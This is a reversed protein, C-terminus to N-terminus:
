KQSVKLRAFVTPQGSPLTYSITTADNVTPTVEAWSNAGLTTSQEIAYAVDGNAVALASKTFSLTGGVLTGPSGNALTPNFGALAYEMLNSMGDHDPDAAPLKDAASLGSFTGMFADFGPKALFIQKAVADYGLTYGAPVTTSSLTGTLSGSYSAIVYRAAAPTALLTFNVSAGTVDLDGNVNLTSASSADLKTALIGPLVLSSVNLAGIGGAGPAIMATPDALSVAGHVTGSGGLTAGAGILVASGAHLSGNVLLSGSYITTAGTYTNNGALTQTGSGTKNLAVVGAGDQIVGSFGPSGASNNQGLTM